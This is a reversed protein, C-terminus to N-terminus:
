ATSSGSAHGPGALMSNRLHTSKNLRLDSARLAAMSYGRGHPRPEPRCIILVSPAVGSKLSRFSLAAGEASM